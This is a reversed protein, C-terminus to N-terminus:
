SPNEPTDFKKKEAPPGGGGWGVGQGPNGDRWGRSVGLQTEQELSMLEM